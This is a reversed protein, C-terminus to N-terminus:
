DAILLLDSLTLVDSAGAHPKLHPHRCEIGDDLREVACLNAVQNSTTDSDVRMAIDVVRGANIQRDIYFSVVYKECNLCKSRNAIVRSCLNVGLREGGTFHVHAPLLWDRVQDTKLANVILRSVYVQKHSGVHIEGLFM